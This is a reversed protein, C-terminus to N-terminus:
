VAAQECTIDLYKKSRTFAVHRSKLSWPAARWVIQHELLSMCPSRECFYHWAADYAEILSQQNTLAM